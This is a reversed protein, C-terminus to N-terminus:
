FVIFFFDFFRMREGVGLWGMEVKWGGGKRMFGEWKVEQLYLIDKNVEFM